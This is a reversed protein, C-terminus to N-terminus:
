EQHEYFYCEADEFDYFDDYYEDYFDETDMFDRAQFPDEEASDAKPKSPAPARYPLAASGRFDSVRIVRGRACTAEFIVRRDNSFTYQNVELQEGRITEFDQHVFPDPSGLSTLDIYDESMGMYPVRGRLRVRAEERERAAEEEERALQEVRYDIAENKLQKRFARTEELQADSLYSHNYIYDDVWIMEHYAKEVDGQAYDLHAMCYDRLARASKYGGDELSDLRELAQRYRRQEILEEAASYDPENRVRSVIFRVAAISVATALAGILILKTKKGM